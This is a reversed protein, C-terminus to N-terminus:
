TFVVPLPICLDEFISARIRGCAFGGFIGTLEKTGQLLARRRGAWRLCPPERSPGNVREVSVLPNATRLGQATQWVKRGLSM